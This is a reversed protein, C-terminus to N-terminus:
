YNWNILVELEKRYRNRTKMDPFSLLVSNALRDVQQALEVDSGDCNTWSQLIFFTQEFYVRLYYATYTEFEEESEELLNIQGFRLDGYLPSSRQTSVVGEPDYACDDTTTKLEISRDEFIQMIYTADVFESEQALTSKAYDWARGPRIGNLSIERGDLYKVASNIEKIQGEGAQECSSFLLFFICILLFSIFRQKM